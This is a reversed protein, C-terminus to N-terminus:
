SHVATRVLLSRVKDFPCLLVKEQIDSDTASPHITDQLFNRFHFNKLHLRLTEIM